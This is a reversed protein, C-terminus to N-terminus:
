NITVDITAALGGATASSLAATLAIALLWWAAAAATKRTAELRYEVQQQWQQIQTQIQQQTLDLHHLLQQKIWSVHSLLTTQTSQSLSQFPLGQLVTESFQEQWLQTLQTLSHQWQELGESLPKGGVQERLIQWAETVVQESKFQALWQTLNQKLQNTAYPLELASGLYAALKELLVDSNSESPTELSVPESQRFEPQESELQKSIELQDSMPNSATASATKTALSTAARAWIREISQLIQRQQKKSLGKRRSLVATLVTPEFAPLTQVPTLLKELRREIRKPTLKKPSTYRLYSELQSYLEAIHQTPELELESCSEAEQEVLNIPKSDITKHWIDELADVAQDVVEDGINAHQKILRIATARDFPQHFNSFPQRNIQESSQEALTRLHERIADWGPQPLKALYDDLAQQLQDTDVSVHVQQRLAALTKPDLSPRQWLANRILAILGGISTVTFGLLKSFLSTLAATSLWLLISFYAAWIVVGVIAGSFLDHVQIFRTALFCAAFLVSNITLLIGVGAIVGVSPFLSTRQATNTSTPQKDQELLKGDASNQGRRRFRYVSLGVAIGLNTLLLQLGYAILLGVILAAIIQSAVASGDSWSVNALQFYPLSSSLM